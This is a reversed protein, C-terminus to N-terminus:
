QLNLAQKIGFEYLVQATTLGSLFHSNTCFFYKQKIKSVVLGDTPQCCCM